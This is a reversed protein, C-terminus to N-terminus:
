CARCMGVVGEARIEGRGSHCCGLVVLKARVQANQVDAMTLMYDEEDPIKTTARVEPSPALVITAKSLIGHAAIHVVSVGQQLKELVAEKTAGDGILPRVGLEKAIAKAEERAGGLPTIFKERGNLIVRGVSPDGIILAGTKYHFNDPSEKVLVHLSQLSPALRIRKTESLYRGTDPDQLAAFPVKNIPGDPIFVVEDQDLVCNGILMKHLTMLFNSTGSEDEEELDEEYINRRSKEPTLFRIFDENIWNGTRVKDTDLIQLPNETEPDQLAASNIPGDGANNAIGVENMLESTTAGKINYLVQLVNDTYTANAESNGPLHDTDADQPAVSNLPGDPDNVTGDENMMDSSKTGKLLMNYLDQLVTGTVNTESNGPLHDTDQPTANDAPGNRDSATGGENMLNNTMAGKIAMSHLAQLINGIDNEHSKELLKLEQLSASSNLNEPPNGGVDLDMGYCQAVNMEELQTTQAAILEQNRSTLDARTNETNQETELSRDECKAVQRVNMNDFAADTALERVKEYCEILKEYQHTSDYHFLLEALERLKDALTRKETKTVKLGGIILHDNTQSESADIDRKFDHLVDGSTGVSMHVLALVQKLKEKIDADNLEESMKLGENGHVYADGLHNWHYYATALLFHAKMEDRRAGFERAIELCKIACHIGNDALDSHENTVVSHDGKSVDPMMVNIQSSAQRESDELMQSSKSAQNSKSMELYTEGLLLYAKLEYERDGLEKALDTCEKGYTLANDYQDIEMYIDALRLYEMMAQNRDGIEKEFDINKKICVIVDEYRNMLSYATGLLNYGLNESEADDCEKAQDIFMKFHTVAADYQNTRLHEIGVFILDLEGQSEDLEKAMDFLHLSCTVADDIQNTEMLANRLHGYALLEHERDNHEQALDISKKFYMVANDYQYMEHYAKGLIFYTKMEIENHNLEKALDICKKSYINVADDYQKRILYAKGLCLYASMEDEKDGLVQALDICKKSYINVADDYQEMELYAKGLCLYASMEDEKNGLEKALDICNKCYTVADDYQEMELYAKGLYLYASMEDEKNGLEKALDICNKCYTVADDYQEM